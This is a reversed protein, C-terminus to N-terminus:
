FEEKEYHKLKAKLRDVERYKDTLSMVAAFLFFATVVSIIMNATLLRGFDAYEQFLVENDIKKISLGISRYVGWGLLINCMLVIGVLVVTGFIM